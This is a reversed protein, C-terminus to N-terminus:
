EARAKPCFDNFPDLHCNLSFWVLGWSSQEFTLSLVYPMRQNRDLQPRVPIGFGWGARQVASRMAPPLNQKRRSLLEVVSTCKKVDTRDMSRQQNNTRHEDILRKSILQDCRVGIKKQKWYSLIHRSTDDSQANLQQSFFGDLIRLRTQYIAFAVFGPQFVNIRQVCRPHHEDCLVIVRRNPDNPHSARVEFHTARGQPRNAYSLQACRPHFWKNCLTASSCNVCLGGPKKCVLCLHGWRGQYTAVSCVPHVLSIGGGSLEVNSMLGGRHGCFVCPIAKQDIRCQECVFKAALQVFPQHHRYCQRHVMLDCRACLLMDFELPNRTPSFHVLTGNSHVCVDCRLQCWDRELNMISLLRNLCVLYM